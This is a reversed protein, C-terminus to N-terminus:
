DLIRVESGLNVDGGEIVNCCVGGRWDPLLANTLGQLQEDMRPCPDTERTVKLIM